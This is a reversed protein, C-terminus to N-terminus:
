IKRYEKGETTQEICVDFRLENDIKNRGDKSTYLGLVLRSYYEECYATEGSIILLSLLILFICGWFRM